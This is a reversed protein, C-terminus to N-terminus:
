QIDIIDNFKKSGGSKELQAQLEELQKQARRDIEARYDQILLVLQQVMDAKGWRFATSHRKVLDSYKTNLEELSLKSLDPTLPHLM